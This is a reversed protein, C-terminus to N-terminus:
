SLPSPPSPTPAQPFFGRIDKSAPVKTSLNITPQPPDVDGEPPNATSTVHLLEKSVGPTAEKGTEKDPPPALDTNKVETISTAQEKKSETVADMTEQINEEAQIPVTTSVEIKNEKPDKHHAETGKTEKTQTDEEATNAVSDRIEQDTLKLLEDLKDAVAGYGLSLYPVCLSEVLTPTDALGWICRKTLEKRKAYYLKREANSVEQERQKKTKELMTEKTPERDATEREEMQKEAEEEEMDEGPNELQEFYQTTNYAPAKQPTHTARKGGKSKVHNWNDTSTPKLITTVIKPNPKGQSQGLITDGMYGNTAPIEPQLPPTLNKGACVKIERKQTETLIPVFDPKPFRQTLTEKPISPTTAILRLHKQLFNSMESVEFDFGEKGHLQLLARAKQHSPTQIRISFGEADSGHFFDVKDTSLDLSIGWTNMITRIHSAEVQYPWGSILISAMNRRPYSGGPKQTNGKELSKIIETDVGKQSFTTFVNLPQKKEGDHIRNTDKLTKKIDEGSTEKGIVAWYKNRIGTIPFFSAGCEMTEKVLDIMVARGQDQKSYERTEVSFYTKGTGRGQLDINRMLFFNGVATTEQIITDIEEETLINANITGYRFPQYRANEKWPPLFDNIITVGYVQTLHELLKTNTPNVQFRFSLTRDHTKHDDFIKEKGNRLTPVSTITNSPGEEEGEDNFTSLYLMGRFSPDTLYTQEMEFSSEGVLSHGQLYTEKELFITDVLFPNKNALMFPNSGAESLNKENLIQGFSTTIFVRQVMQKRDRSLVGNLENKICEGVVQFLGQQTIENTEFLISINNYEKNKDEETFLPDFSLPLGEKLRRHSETLFSGLSKITTAERMNKHTQFNETVVMDVASYKEAYQYLAEWDKEQLTKFNKKVPLIRDGLTTLPVGTLQRNSYRENGMGNLLAALSVRNPVLVGNRYATDFFVTSGLTIDAERGECGLSESLPVEWPLLGLPIWKEDKNKASPPPQHLRLMQICRGKDPDIVVKGAARGMKQYGEKIDPQFLSHTFFTPCGNEDKKLDKILGIDLAGKPIIYVQKLSINNTGPGVTMRSFDILIPHGAQHGLFKGVEVPNSSSARFNYLGSIFYFSHMTVGSLYTESNQGTLFGGTWNLQERPLSYLVTTSSTEYLEQARLFGEWSASSLVKEGECHERVYAEWAEERNGWDDEEDKGHSSSSSVDQESESEGSNGWEVQEHKKRKSDNDTETLNKIPRHIDYKSEKSNDPGTAISGGSFVQTETRRKRERDTETQRQYPSVTERRRGRIKKGYRDMGTLFDGESDEDDGESYSRGRQPPVGNGDGQIRRTEEQIQFDRLFFSM